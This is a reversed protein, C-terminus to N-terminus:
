DRTRERTQFFVQGSRANYVQTLYPANAVEAVSPFVIQQGFFIKFESLDTTEQRLEAQLCTRAEDWSPQIRAADRDNLSFTSMVRGDAARSQGTERLAFTGSGPLPRGNISVDFVAIAAEIEVAPHHIVRFRIDGVNQTGLCASTFGIQKTTPATGACGALAVLVLLVLAQLRAFRPMEIM